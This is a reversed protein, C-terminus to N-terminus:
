KSPNEILLKDTIDPLKEIQMMKKAIFIRLMDKDIKEQTDCVKKIEEFAERYISEKATETM